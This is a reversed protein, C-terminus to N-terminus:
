ESICKKQAADWIYGVEKLNKCQAQNLDGYKLCQEQVRDFYFGTEEHCKAERTKLSKQKESLTYLEEDKVSEDVSPKCAHSCILFLILAAYDLRAM